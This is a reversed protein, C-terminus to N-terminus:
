HSPTSRAGPSLSSSRTRGDLRVGAVREGILETIDHRKTQTYLRHVLDPGMILDCGPYNSVDRTTGVQGGIDTAVVITSLNKRAAYMAATLGAPGGGVIAM